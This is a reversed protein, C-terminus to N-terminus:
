PEAEAQLLDLARAMARDLLRQDLAPELGFRGLAAHLKALGEDGSLQNWAAGDVEAAQALMSIAEGLTGPGTAAEIDLAPRTEDAISEILVPPSRQLASPGLHDALQSVAGGRALERHLPGAGSLAVQVAHADPGEACFSAIAEQIAQMLADLSPLPEIEVQLRSWRVSDVPRFHRATRGERVHVLVCGREGPEAIHRGQPNGPYVAVGGSELPHEIRTHVHGLAWYDLRCRSLDSLRCPAYNSHAPSAGVNAHLLGITLEPGKRSFLPTLDECVREHPYSVGQVRCLVGGGRHVEVEEWCAGFVKVSPPLRLGGPESSLPDHNGHAIFTRIGAADLRSLERILELRARVSRDRYEFLDGAILLFEAQESLCLDVIRRFATFTAEQFIRQLPGATRARLPSDLHLDAAHVFKFDM